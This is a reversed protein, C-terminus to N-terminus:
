ASMVLQLNSRLPAARKPTIGLPDEDLKCTFCFGKVTEMRAVSFAEDDDTLVFGLKELVRMSAPNDHFVHAIIKSAGLSKQAEDMMAQCAETIYGKGWYTPDLHYGFELTSHADPRFFECIGILANGDLTIAYSFSLQRQKKLAKDMLKFEASLVPFPYSITACMKAVDYRGAIRAFANADELTLQRLVLRETRIEDRM